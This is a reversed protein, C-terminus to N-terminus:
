NGFGNKMPYSMGNRGNDSSCTSCQKEDKEQQMCRENILSGIEHLKLQCLPGINNPVQTPAKPTREKVEPKADELNDIFEM